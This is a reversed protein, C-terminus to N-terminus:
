SIKDKTISILKKKDWNPFANKLDREYDYFTKAKLTKRTVKFDEFAHKITIRQMKAARKEAVPDIGTAIQGLM